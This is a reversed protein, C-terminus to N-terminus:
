LDGQVLKDHSVSCSDGKSCQGHAKWQFCEGVQREVHTARTVDIYELPVPFTEEKRCMSNFELNLTIVISSTVKSRGSTPEPKLTMQQNQRHLSERSVKLNDVAIKARQPKSGDQLPTKPIRLRGSLKATGDAIPFIIEDGKQSIWIEKANIRRPSVDSADLKGLRRFGCDSRTREM